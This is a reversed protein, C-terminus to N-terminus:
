PEGSISFSGIGNKGELERAELSGTDESESSVM